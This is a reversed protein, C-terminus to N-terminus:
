ALEDLLAKAHKLDLTEFGEGFWDYVPALVGRAKNREDQDCLLRALSTAARLELSKAQQMRAVELARNFYAEAKGADRHPLRLAIEGAIRNIEAELWTEKTERM